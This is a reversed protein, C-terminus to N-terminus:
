KESQLSSICKSLMSAGLLGLACGAVPVLRDLAEDPLTVRSFYICVPAGVAMLLLGLRATPLSFLRRM